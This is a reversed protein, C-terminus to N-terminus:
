TFFKGTPAVDHLKFLDLPDYVEGNNVERSAGIMEEGAMNLKLSNLIRGQPVFASVYAIFSFLLLMSMM